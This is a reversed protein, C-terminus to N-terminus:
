IPKKVHNEDQANVRFISDRPPAVVKSAAMLQETTITETTSDIKPGGFHQEKSEKEILCKVRLANCNCHLPLKEQGRKM